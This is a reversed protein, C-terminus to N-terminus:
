NFAEILNQGVENIKKAKQYDKTCEVHDQDDFICKSADKMGLAVGTQSFLCAGFFMFCMLAAISFFVSIGNM